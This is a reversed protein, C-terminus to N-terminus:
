CAVASMYLYASKRSKKLASFNMTSLAAGTHIGTFLPNEGPDSPPIYSNVFIFFDTWKVGMIVPRREPINKPPPVGKLLTRSGPIFEKRIAPSRYRPADRAKRGKMRLFPLLSSSEMLFDRLRKPM